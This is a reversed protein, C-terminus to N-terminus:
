RNAKGNTCTQHYPGFQGLYQTWEEQTLNRGAVQCAADLWQAADLSWLSVGQEAYPAALEKGDARIAFIGVAGSVDPIADGLQARTALDYIRYGDSENEAVALRGDDSIRINEALGHMGPLEDGVKLTEPDFLFLRGALTSGVAVGTPGVAVNVLDPASPGLLAGTTADFMRSGAQLQTIGLRTGDATSWVSEISEGAAAPVEITPGVYVGADSYVEIHHEFMLFMRHHLADNIPRPIEGELDIPAGVTSRTRIDYLRGRPGDPELFISWIQNPQSNWSGTAYESPLPTTKGTTANFLQGQLLSSNSLIFTSTPDYGLVMVSGTDSAIMRQIPGSGDLRWAGIANNLYSTAVLTHDDPTFALPGPVGTQRDLVRGTAAGNTVNREIVTGFDDTCFIRAPKGRSITAVELDRCAALGDIPQPLLANESGALDSWVVQGSAVEIRSLRASGFTILYDGAVDTVYRIGYEASWETGQLSRVERLGDKPSPLDFVRIEGSPAGVFLQGDPAFSVSATRMPISWGLPVPVTAAGVISGTSTDFVQVSGASGGGLALLSGDGNLSADGFGGFLAPDAPVSSDVAFPVTVPAGLPQGSTTNYARWVLSAAGQVAFVAVRGDASLELFSVYYPEGEVTIEDLTALVAGTELDVRVLRGHDVGALGTKGDNLVVLSSISTIGPVRRYGMFGINRTFTSFLASRAKTPDIRYAEIALLAALDQRRDRQLSSTNVLNEIAGTRQADQARTASVEAAARQAGAEASKQDARHSQVLAVGGTILALVVVAVLGVLSRRLRRNQRERLLSREEIAVREADAFQLSSDLFESENPTLAGARTESMEAVVALRAGRYLDADDRGSSEWLRAAGALGRLEGLWERDEDLWERLLPWSRLLAEHAIEITPERTDRDRDLTLLRRDVLASVIREHVGALESLRARRRTDETGEGANVLRAFLRRVAVRGPDDFTDFLANAQHAVSGALGGIEEYAETTITSGSRRDFLETLTFQLLPLSGPQDLAEAVIRGVLGPEFRVGVKAPPDTIAEFLESAQMPTVGLTAQAVLPGLSPDRLPRDFWDARITAVVRVRASSSVLEALATTFATRADADTTTWLEELQDLVIVLQGGFGLMTGAEIMGGPSRLADRTVTYAQGATALEALGGALTGFPDDGPACTVVLSGDRKMMPVLGALVLSSKGSGSPGVVAVFRHAAVAETLQELLGTRGFFENADAEGFPRLGKYPNTVPGALRKATSGAAEIRPVDAVSEGGPWTTSTVGAAIAADWAAVFEAVSEFRDDPHVSSARSLVDDARSPVDKRFGQLPGLHSQMKASIVEAVTVGEFPARGALLEWVTAALAYQDASADATGDRSQEPSA